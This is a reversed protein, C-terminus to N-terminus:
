LTYKEGKEESSLEIGSQLAKKVFEEYTSRAAKLKHELIKYQIISENERDEELREKELQEKIAKEYRVTVEYERNLRDALSTATVAESSLFAEPIETVRGALTEEYIIRNIIGNTEAQFAEETLRLLKDEPVFESRHKPIPIVSPEYNRLALEAQDVRSRLVHLSRMAWDPTIVSHPNSEDNKPATSTTSNHGRFCSSSVLTFVIIIPLLKEM